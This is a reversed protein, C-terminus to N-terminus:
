RAPQTVQAASATELPPLDVDYRAFIRRYHPSTRLLDEHGGSAVLHGHDLVLILDAWRIQSMRHTILITTREEQARRIAKQIEDETASDIASTSDDLILIRPDSLFARALAVRQRQGGSLTTGREGVKTEYGDAFTMIFDHAQAERAAQDIQEQVANLAGFAINEAVSRSFLFVDQEITSIQSRLRDLDWERVDVGDVLIRGKTADYTRNILLALTSKGSGTQGVIAVTQGPAIRFSIDELVPPEDDEYGFTVDEFVIEGQITVSHGGVNEDLDTEARIIALLRNASAIGLQVLSFSFISIFVPFRLVNMLGMVAILEPITVVGRDYLVIAHLFTFGLAIGYLLLPLYRAEIQGQEVFYDRFLRANKRFRGREFSEQVSAKVVEIGSISEELGANLTGFQERQRQMVPNLKRTYGRVAWIYTLIFIAPVLLLEFKIIAIYLLPVFIGMVTEYIFRLGPNLMFNLQRVDDTARAMIDGVRQRDHFTQSKELLSIYLEQRSDAELRQAMTEIVLGGIWFAVSSVSMAGLIMLSLTLLRANDSSNIIEDAAEGVLVPAQSYAFFDLMSLVVAAIFLARYRWMHSFIWRSATALNYTYADQVTFERKASAAM